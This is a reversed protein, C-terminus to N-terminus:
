IPINRETERKSKSKVRLKVSERQGWGLPSSLLSTALPKRIYRLILESNGIEIVYNNGQHFALLKWGTTIFM